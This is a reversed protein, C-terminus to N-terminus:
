RGTLVEDLGAYLAMTTNGSRQITDRIEATVRDDYDPALLLRQFRYYWQAPDSEYIPSESFFTVVRGLIEPRLSGEPLLDIFGAYLLSELHFLQLPESTFKQEWSDLAALFDRVQQQWEASQRQELSLPGIVHVDEPVFVPADDPPPLQDGFRLQQLAAALAQHEPSDGFRHITAGGLIESPVLEADTVPTVAGALDTAALRTVLDAGGRISQSGPAGPAADACRPGSAVRVVWARQAEILELPSLKARRIDQALDPLTRQLHGLTAASSRPDTAPMEALTSSYIAALEGLEENAWLIGAILNAAPALELPSDLEHLLGAIFAAQEGSNRETFTFSQKAIEEALEYYASVDAVLPDACSYAPIEPMSTQSFATRAQRSDLELTGRLARIQLSLQDIRLSAVSARLGVDSDADVTQLVAIQLPFKHTAGPAYQIARNLLELKWERDEVVDREVLQLLVDAALESPADAAADVLTQVDGPLPPLDAAACSLVVLLGVFFRLM